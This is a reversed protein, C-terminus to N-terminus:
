LRPTVTSNAMKFPVCWVICLLTDQDLATNHLAICLRVESLSGLRQQPENALEVAACPTRM